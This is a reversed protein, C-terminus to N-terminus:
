KVYIKIIKLFVSGFINIAYAKNKNTNKKKKIIIKEINYIISRIPIDEKSM